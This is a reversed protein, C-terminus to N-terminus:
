GEMKHYDTGVWIYKQGLGTGLKGIGDARWCPMCMDAWQTTGRRKGDVYLLLDERGCLNCSKKEM